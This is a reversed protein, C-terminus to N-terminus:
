SLLCLICPLPLAPFADKHPLGKPQTLLFSFLAYQARCFYFDICHPLDPLFLPRHLSLYAWFETFMLAQDFLLTVISRILRAGSSQKLSALEGQGM